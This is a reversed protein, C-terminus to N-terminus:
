GWASSGPSSPAPRWHRGRGSAAAPAAWKRPPGEVRGTLHAKYKARGLVLTGTWSRQPPAGGGTRSSCCAPPLTRCRRHRGHGGGEDARGSREGRARGSRDGAGIARLGGGVLRLVQEGGEAQGLVVVEVDGVLEGTAGEKWEGALRDEGLGLVAGPRWILGVVGQQRGEEGHRHGEAAPDPRLERQGSEGGREGGEQQPRGVAAETDRERGRGHGDARPRRGGRRTRCPPRGRTEPPARPPLPSRPVSPAARGRRGTPARDRRRRGAM